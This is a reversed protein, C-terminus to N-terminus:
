LLLPAATRSRFLAPDAGPVTHCPQTSCVLYCVSCQHQVSHLGAAWRGPFYADRGSRPGTVENNCQYSHVVEETENPFLFVGQTDSFGNKFSVKFLLRSLATHRVLRVVLLTNQWGPYSRSPISLNGWSETAHFPAYLGKSERAREIRNKLDIAGAHFYFLFFFCFTTSCEEIQMRM